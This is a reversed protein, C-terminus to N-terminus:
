NVCLALNLRPHSATPDLIQPLRASVCSSRSSWLHQACTRLTPDGAPPVREDPAPRLPVGEPGGQGAADSGRAPSWHATTHLDELASQRVGLTPAELM